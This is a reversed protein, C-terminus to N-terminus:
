NMNMYFLDSDYEEYEGKEFDGLAKALRLVFKYVGSKVKSGDALTGNFPANVGSSRGLWKVPFNPVSGVAELSSFTVTNTVNVGVVDVRALATPWINTFYYILPVKPTFARVQTGNYTVPPTSGYSSYFNSKPLLITINDMNAAVGAYPIHVTEVDSSVKIFGSYIPVQVGNLKPNPEITVQIRQEQGPELVVALPSITATSYQIDIPVPFTAFEVSSSSEFAYMNAAPEHSLNYTRRVSGTNTLDFYTDKNFNVTDNLALNAKSIKTSGHIM